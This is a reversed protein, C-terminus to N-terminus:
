AAKAAKLEEAIAEVQARLRALDEQPVGRSLALLIEVVGHRIATEDDSM